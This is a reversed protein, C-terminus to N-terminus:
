AGDSEGENPTPAPRRRLEAELAATREGEAKRAQKLGQIQANAKALAAEAKDRLAINADRQGLLEACRAELAAINKAAAAADEQEQTM